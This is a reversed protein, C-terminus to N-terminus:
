AKAGGATGRDIGYLLPLCALSFAAALLYAADFRGTLAVIAAFGVPALMNSLFVLIVSGAATEAILEPPSRRAVEAIQVGNWGSVVIGACAALLLLTWVPWAPTVLAFAATALASGVAAVALTTTGSLLRDTLWGMFVRGFVSSAQMTAFVMGAVVLPLSQEAVLYVVAFTVWCAQAIALLGGVWSARWLTPARSLSRLPMVIDSLRFSVLRAGIRQEAPPDIRSRYPLTLAIALIAGCAAVVLAMRWGLSDILPPITLGAIVGGMPVGAQKISFVFNRHAKPTFRQLVESGAPNAAGVNIGLIISAIMAVALSPVHYLLLCAAGAILGAQLAMVGGMRKILGIGATLVFLSGVVSAASLYGVWGTDWGFEGMFAPAAIPVLRSLFSSVTQLIVIVAIAILWTPITQPM